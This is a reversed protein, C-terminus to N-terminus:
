ESHTPIYILAVVISILKSSKLFSFISSGCSGTLGSKPM